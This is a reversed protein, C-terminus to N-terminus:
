NNSSAIYHAFARMLVAIQEKDFFGVLYLLVNSDSLLQKVLKAKEDLSMSDCVAFTQESTVQEM